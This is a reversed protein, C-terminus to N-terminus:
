GFMKDAENLLNLLRPSFVVEVDEYNSTDIDDDEKTSNSYIVNNISDENKTCCTEDVIKKLKVM